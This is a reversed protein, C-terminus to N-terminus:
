PGAKKAAQREYYRVKTRWKTLTRQAAKARKEAKVLARVARAARKEVLARSLESRSPKPKEEKPTPPFLEIEGTAIRRALEAIVVEGMGYAICGQSAPVDLPVNIGWCEHAARRFTLRYREGHGVSSPLALHVMEHVLVELTRKATTEPGATIRIKRKSLYAMGGASGNASHVVHLKIAGLNGKFPPLKRYAALAKDLDVGAVVHGLKRRVAASKMHEKRGCEYCDGPQWPDEVNDRHAGIATGCNPCKTFGNM